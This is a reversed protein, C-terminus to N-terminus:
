KNWVKKQADEADKLLHADGGEDQVAEMRDALQAALKTRVQKKSGHARSHKERAGGTHKGGTSRHHTGSGSVFKNAHAVTAKLQREASTLEEPEPEPAHHAVLEEATMLREDCDKCRSKGSAYETSCEPCHKADVSLQRASAEQCRPCAHHEQTEYATGCKNCRVPARQLVAGGSPHSLSSMRTGAPAVTQAAGACVGCGCGPSHTLARAGMAEAERELGADDSRWLTDTVRKTPRARGQAQQVLHWAEHPLHHEMGPALHIEGRHAYAEASVRAPQPSRYHVRVGDLSVGSLAEIGTKLRGPLGRHTEAAAGGDVPPHIPVSSLLSEDRQGPRTRQSPSREGAPVVPKSVAAGAPARRARLGATLAMM